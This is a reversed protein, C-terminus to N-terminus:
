VNEFITIVEGAKLRVIAKKWAPTKGAFRGMRKLKGPVVMTRVTDVKVKFADEVADRIKYKNARRDVKFTYENNADRLKTTRETTIHSLITKHVEM